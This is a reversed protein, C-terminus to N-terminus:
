DLEQHWPVVLLEIATAVEWLDRIQLPMMKMMMSLNKMMRRVTMM